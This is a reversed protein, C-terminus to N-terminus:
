GDMAAAGMGATPDEVILDGLGGSAAPGLLLTAALCLRLAATRAHM